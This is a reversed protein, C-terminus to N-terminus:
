DNNQTKFIKDFFNITIPMKPPRTKAYFTICGLRTQWAYYFSAIHMKHPCLLLTAPYAPALTVLHTHSFFVWFTVWGM